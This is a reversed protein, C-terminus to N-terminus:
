RVLHVCGHVFGWTVCFLCCRRSLINEGRLGCTRPEFGLPRVMCPRTPATTYRFDGNDTGDIRILRTIGNPDHAYQTNCWTGADVIGTAAVSALETQM